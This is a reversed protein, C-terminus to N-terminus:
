DCAGLYGDCRLSYWGNTENPLLPLSCAKVQAPRETGRDINSYRWWPKYWSKGWTWRQPRHNFHFGIHAVQALFAISHYWYCYEKRDFISLPLEEFMLAEAQLIVSYVVWCQLGISSKRIRRVFLSAIHRLQVVWSSIMSQLELECWDWGFPRLQAGM